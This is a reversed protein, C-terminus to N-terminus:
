RADDLSGSLMVRIFAWGCALSKLGIVAARRLFQGVPFQMRFSIRLIDLRHDDTKSGAKLVSALALMHM